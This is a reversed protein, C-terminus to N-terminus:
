VGLEKALKARLKEIDKTECEWVVVVRWGQTSLLQYNRRDRISNEGIKRSWFEARSKARSRGKVCDHSHWYCGHVFVVAMRSRLVIDPKGPLDRAVLRFRVGLRHLTSRVIREPLTDRNRIRSMIESRKEKSYIDAM